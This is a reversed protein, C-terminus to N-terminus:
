RIGIVVDERHICEGSHEAAASAILALSHSVRAGELQEPIHSM